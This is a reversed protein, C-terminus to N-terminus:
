KKEGKIEFGDCRCDEEHGCVNREGANFHDSERGGCECFELRRLNRAETLRVGHVRREHTRVDFESRTTFACYICRFEESVNQLCQVVVAKAMGLDFQRQGFAAMCLAMASDKWNTSPDFEGLHKEAAEMFEPRVNIPM